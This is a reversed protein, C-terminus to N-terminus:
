HTSSLILESQSTREAQTANSDFQRMLSLCRAAAADWSEPQYTRAGDQFSSDLIQLLAHQLADVDGCPVVRSYEDAAIECVSGANTSVFPIGCALSERLVNPLGESDSALVTADAARYWAALGDRAVPGVFKVAQELRNQRVSAKLSEELPGSGVLALQADPLQCRVKHFAALLIDLRKITVMRGVWLFLPASTDLGLSRRADDRNGPSFHDLDIGQRSTHTREPDGGLEIVRQRLGDCVTFVLDMRRLVSAIAERRKANETLLLVDSGGIAVAARAGCSRAARLAAEGDPHAWYSIVWDPRFEAVVQSVHSRISHWMWSGYHHRQIRPPYWYIPRSSLVREDNEAERSGPITLMELWSVPAVVRVECSQALAHCLDRSYTGRTPATRSPYVSSLYLIRM